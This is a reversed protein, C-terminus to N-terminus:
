VYRGVVSCPAADAAVAAHRYVAYKSQIPECKDAASLYGLLYLVALVIGAIM